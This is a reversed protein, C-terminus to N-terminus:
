YLELVKRVIERDDFDYHVGNIEQYTEHGKGAVLVTDGASANNIAYIIAQERDEISEFEYNEPLGSCIDNIICEPKETRPNDSTVVVLDAIDAAVKGMRARKTKDRDGGCGFVVTLKKDTLKKLTMSVNSLADDTHAYDVFVSVGNGGIFSELRGPVQHKSSPAFVGAISEASLGLAYAASVAGAINYVNYEGILSSYLTLDHGDLNLHITVGRVCSEFSVIQCHCEPGRGFSFASEGIIDILQKGYKDDANIVAVGDDELIDLFLRQKAEFYSEMTGHYDLHDGTLNTFIGVKFLSNGTRHQDLGHSSVEMVVNECNEDAMESFLQQLGYAEPTTRSAVEVRGGTSYEVTSVLGTKRGARKLIMSLLFATTTKGNTGTIGALDFNQSPFSFYCEVLLAYARYIDSVLIYTVGTVKSIDSTHVIVSAGSEIANDIYNHGDFCAGKIAVFIDGFSVKRSNNTVNNIQLETDGCLGVILDSIIQIYGSLMKM